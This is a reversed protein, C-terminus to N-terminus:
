IDTYIRKKGTKARIGVHWIETEFETLTAVKLGEIRPKKMGRALPVGLPDAQHPPRHRRLLEDATFPM